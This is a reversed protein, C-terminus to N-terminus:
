TRTHIRGFLLRAWRGAHTARPQARQSVVLVRWEADAGPRENAEKMPICSKPYVVIAIGVRCSPLHLCDSTRVPFRLFPLLILFNILAPVAMWLFASLPPVPDVPHYSSFGHQLIFYEWCGWGLLVMWTTLYAIVVAFLHHFWFLHQTPSSWRRLEELSIDHHLLDARMLVSCRDPDGVRRWHRQVQFSLAM